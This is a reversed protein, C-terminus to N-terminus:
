MFNTNRRQLKQIFASTLSTDPFTIKVWIQKLIDIWQTYQNMSEFDNM